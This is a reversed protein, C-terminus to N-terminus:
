PVVELTVTIEVVGPPIVDPTDICSVASILSWNPIEDASKAAFCYTTNSNFLGSLTVSEPTGSPSPTPLLSDAVPTALDWDFLAANCDMYRLDYQTATGDSGDDGPAIWRCTIEITGAQPASCSLVLVYMLAVSIKKM